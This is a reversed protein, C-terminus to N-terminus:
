AKEEPKVGAMKRLMKRAEPASAGIDQTGLYYHVRNGQTRGTVEGSLKLNQAMRTLRGLTRTSDVDM